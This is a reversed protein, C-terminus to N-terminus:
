FEAEGVALNHKCTGGKIRFLFASENDPIIKDMLDYFTILKPTRVPCEVSIAESLEYEM